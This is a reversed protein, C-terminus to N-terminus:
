HTGEIGVDDASTKNSPYVTVIVNNSTVDSAANVVVENGHEDFAPPDYWQGGKLIQFKGGNNGLGKSYDLTWVSGRAKVDLTCVIVRRNSELEAINTETCDKGAEVFVSSSPLGLTFHWRQGQQAYKADLIEKSGSLGEPNKDVGSTHTSGIFTRNLDNLFLVNASGLIDREDGPTRTDLGSPLYSHSHYDRGLATQAAEEVQYNRRGSENLWDLYYYYNQVGVETDKPNFKYQNVQMYEGNVGYYVDLPTYKGTNLDLSYYMPRIQVKEVMKEDSLFVTSSPPNKGDALRESAVTEGYYNGITELDMYLQYGPRMPQKGLSEIINDAPTLPLDIPKKATTGGTKGGTELFQTNYTDLWKNAADIEEHRVNLNDAAIFNPKTLDVNPILNPILWTGDEKSMKFTTAFRYDGTDHITMAGISGVVDINHTKYASHTANKNKESRLKNTVGDSDNFYDDVTASPGNIATATFENTCGAREYNSLVCYFEFLEQTTSFENLDIKTYAMRMTNSPDVVDFPFSVWRHKTWPTTNMNNIYGKGRIISTTPIGQLTTDEAFNGRFPFYITFERDINIFTGGMKAVEGSPLTIETKEKHNDPNNCPQWCRTDGMPYHVDPSSADVPQGPEYHHPDTCTLVKTYEDKCAETCVHTNLKGTCGGIPKINSGKTLPIANAWKNPDRTVVLRGANTLRDQDIIYGVWYAYRESNVGNAYPAAYNDYLYRYTPNLYFPEVFKRPHTREYNNPHNLDYTVGHANRGYGYYWWEMSQLYDYQERNSEYAFRHSGTDSVHTRYNGDSMGSTFFMAQDYDVTYTIGGGTVLRAGPWQNPNWSLVHTHGNYIQLLWGVSKM